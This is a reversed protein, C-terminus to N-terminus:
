LTECNLSNKVPKVQVTFVRYFTKKHPTENAFHSSGYLTGKAAMLGRGNVLPQVRKIASLLCRPKAYSLM